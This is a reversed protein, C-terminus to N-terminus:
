RTRRDGTVLSRIPPSRRAIVISLRSFGRGPRFAKSAQPSAGEAGPILNEAFGELESVVSQPLRILRIALASLTGLAMSSGRHPTAIFIARAVDRRPEFLIANRVANGSPLKGVGPAVREAEVLSIRSIQARALVGGMSHGVLIFPNQLRRGSAAETLAERLQKSSYPIPQGTPYFFFWFQYRDRIERDALLGKLIPKWMRPTSLLGHILVVPTKAPNFPQLFVLQSPYQFWNSFLLYRLGDLPRPGTERAM